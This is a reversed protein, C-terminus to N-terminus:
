HAKVCGCRAGRSSNPRLPLSPIPLKTIDKDTFHARFFAVLKEGQILGGDITFDLLSVVTQWTLSRVWGDLRELQGDAYAAGVLAGISTGCVIDPRIGARELVRIIGIHSWSRASGSGLALGITPQARQM